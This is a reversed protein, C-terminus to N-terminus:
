FSVNEWLSLIKPVFNPRLEGFNTWIPGFPDFHIIYGDSYSVPMVLQDIYSSFNYKKVLLHPICCVSPVFSYAALLTKCTPM